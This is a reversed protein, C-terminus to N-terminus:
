VNGALRREISVSYAKSRAALIQDGSPEIGETLNNPDFILPTEPTEVGEATESVELRGLDVVEREPPWALTPDDIQDGDEALQLQLTYAVPTEAIRGGIEEQLYHETAGDIEEEPMLQEGAEPIFSYRGFRREGARNTFAFAHIGNFRCTAFSLPPNLTPLIQQLAAGTEPHEGLFAGLKEMDMEGTDPNPERAHLFALFSEPDRVFFVPLTLAVIDTSEEGGLHFKVAIGRGERRDNDPAHPNGSGNSFRVTVAVESQLHAATSVEKAQAAPTFSGRCVTGKAHAARHGPHKGHLANMADVIEEYLDSM